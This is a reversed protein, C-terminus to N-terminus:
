IPYKLRLDHNEVKVCYKSTPWNLQFFAVLGQSKFQGSFDFDHKLINAIEQGRPDDNQLEIALPISAIVGQTLELDIAFTMSSLGLLCFLFWKKM